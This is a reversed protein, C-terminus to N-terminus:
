PTIRDVRWLRYTYLNRQECTERTYPFEHGRPDLIRGHDYAIVHYGYPGSCEIIGRSHQLHSSFDNWNGEDTGIIIERAPNNAPTTAPRLPIPTVAYGLNVAVRIMEYINHGQRREPEPLDPFAIESGDHGVLRILDEVHVNLVMAFATIVCQWRENQTQLKM